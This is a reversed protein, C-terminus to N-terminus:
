KNRDTQVRVYQVVETCLIDHLYPVVLVRMEYYGTVSVLSHPSIKYESILGRVEVITVCM